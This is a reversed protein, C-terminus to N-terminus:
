VANLDDSLLISGDQRIFLVAERGDAWRLGLIHICDAYEGGALINAIVRRRYLFPRANESGWVQASWNGARYEIKFLEPGSVQAFGIPGSEQLEPVVTGDRMTAFWPWDVPESSMM